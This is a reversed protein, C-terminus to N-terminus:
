PIARRAANSTSRAASRSSRDTTSSRGAPAPTGSSDRRGPHVGRRPRLPRRPDLFGGRRFNEGPSRTRHPSRTGRPAGAPSSSRADRVTPRTRVARQLHHEAHGRPRDSRDGGVTRRAGHALGAPRRRRPRLDPRPARATAPGRRPLLLRVQWARRNPRPPRVLRLRDPQGIDSREVGHHQERRPLPRRSPDAEATRQESMGATGSRAYRNAPRALGLRQRLTTARTTAPWCGAIPSDLAAGRRRAMRAGDPLDAPQLVFGDVSGSTYWDALTTSSSAPTSDATSPFSRWCASTTPTAVTGGRGLTRIEARRTAARCRRRRRRVRRRRPSRRVSTPRRTTPAFPSSRSARRRGRRSRLGACTSSGVKSTSTTCSPGTSTAAPRSPRPHRRRGGLQGVAAPRGRGRRRGRRVADELPAPPRRGFRDAAEATTSVAVRWGARGGSVLDLTAINKSVHFPETHTTTVTAILGITTTAAAVHALALLADLHVRGADHEARARVSRLQRRALRLRPQRARGHLALDVLQRATPNRGAADLAVGIIPTSRSM